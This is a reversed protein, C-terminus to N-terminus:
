RGATEPDQIESLVSARLGFNRFTSSSSARLDIEWIVAVLRPSRPALFRLSLPCM